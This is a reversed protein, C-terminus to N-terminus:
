RKTDKIFSLNLPATPTYSNDAATSIEEKIREILLRDKSEPLLQTYRHFVYTTIIDRTVPSIKYLDGEVQIDQIAPNIEKLPGSIYDGWAWVNIWKKAKPLIGSTINYNLKTFWSNVYSNIIDETKSRHSSYATGIPSSLTIFLDCKIPNTGQSESALAMFSLFTGWSHSVIILKKNENIARNYYERLKNILSQIGIDSNSVNRDWNFSVIELGKSSLQMGDLATKLYNNDNLFPQSSITNAFSLGDVTIVIATKQLPDTDTCSYTFLLTILTFSLPLIKKLM